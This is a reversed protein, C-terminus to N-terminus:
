LIHVLYSVAACSAWSPVWAAKRPDKVAAAAAATKTWAAIAAQLLQKQCFYHRLLLHICPHALDLFLFFYGSSAIM